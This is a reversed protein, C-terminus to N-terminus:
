RPLRWRARRAERALRREHRAQLGAEVAELSSGPGLMAWGDRLVPLLTFIIVWIPWFSGGAGAAIWIAVCVISATLSGGAEQALRRRLHSRRAALARKAAASSVPLDARLVDLDARTKARYVAELRQDLEEATLRGAVTHERLEEVVGDREQDSIRLQGADSM